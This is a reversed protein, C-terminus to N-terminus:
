FDAGTNSGAPAKVPPAPKFGLPPLIFAQDDPDMGENGLGNEDIGNKGFSYIRIINQDGFFEKQWGHQTESIPSSALKLPLHHFFDTPVKPLFEPVLDDIRAVDRGYKARYLLFALATDALQASEDNRQFRYVIRGMAPLMMRTMVMPGIQRASLFDDVETDDMTEGRAARAMFEDMVEQCCARDSPYLLAAYFDNNVVASSKGMPMTLGSTAFTDIGMLCMKKETQLAEISRQTGERNTRLQKRYAELEATKTPPDCCVINELTSDAQSEIAIQVLQSILFRDSGIHRALAYMAALTSAAGAHDGAHAKMRADLALLRGAERLKKLQPLPASNGLPYNVGFNCKETQTALLLANIAPLNASYYARAESNELWAPSQMEESSQHATILFGSVPRVLLTAAAYLEAANESKAVPPPAAAIFAATSEALNARPDGGSQRLLLLLVTLAVAEMLPIMMMRRLGPQLYWAALPVRPDAPAGSGDEM